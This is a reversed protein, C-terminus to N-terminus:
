TTTNTKKSAPAVCPLVFARAVEFSVKPLKVCTSVADSVSDVVDTAADAVTDAADSVTDAADSAADAAHQAAANAKCQADFTGCSVHSLKRRCGVNILTIDPVELACTGTGGVGSSDPTCTCGPIINLAPTLVDCVASGSLRRPSPKATLTFAEAAHTPLSLFFLTLTSLAM